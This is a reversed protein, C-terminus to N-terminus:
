WNKNRREMAEAIMSVNAPFIVCRNPKGGSVPSRTLIEKDVSKRGTTIKDNGPAAFRYKM